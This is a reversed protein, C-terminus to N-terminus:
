AGPPHEGCTRSAPVAQHRDDSIPGGCVECTSYTGDDLRQLAHEVDDLEAEIHELTALHQEADM